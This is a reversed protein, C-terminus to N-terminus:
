PRRVRRGQALAQAFQQLSGRAAYGVTHRPRPQGLQQFVGLDRPRPLLARGRGEDLAGFELGQDCRAFQEGAGFQGDDVFGGAAAGAEGMALEPLAQARAALAAKRLPDGLDMITQEALAAVRQRRAQRLGPRRRQDVFELVGVRALPRDELAQIAIRRARQDQDAIGLLRDVGEAAAVDVAVEGRALLQRGRAHVRDLAVETRMRVQQRREVARYSSAAGTAKPALPM